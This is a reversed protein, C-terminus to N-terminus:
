LFGKGSDDEGTPSSPAQEVGEQPSYKNLLNDLQSNNESAQNEQEQYKNLIDDIRAM